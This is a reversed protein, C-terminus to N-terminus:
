AAASLRAYRPTNGSPTDHRQRSRTKSATLKRLAEGGDPPTPAAGAQGTELWARDVGTALAYANLTIPRVKRRDKEASTLTDPTVGIHEAFERLGMGTSERAIRLRWGLTVEPVHGTHNPTTTM